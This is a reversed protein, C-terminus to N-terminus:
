RDARHDTGSSRHRAGPRRGAVAAPLGEIAAVILMAHHESVDPRLEGEARAQRLLESIAERYQRYVAAVDLSPASTWVELLVRAQDRHAALMDLVGGVLRALRELAPGGGVTALVADSRARYSEFM